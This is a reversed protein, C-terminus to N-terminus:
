AESRPRGLPLTQPSARMASPGQSWIDRGQQPYIDALPIIPAPCSGGMRKIRDIATLGNPGRPGCEGDPRETSRGCDDGHVTGCLDVPDELGDRDPLQEFILLQGPQYGDVSDRRNAVCGPLTEADASVGFCLASLSPGSDREVVDRLRHQEPRSSLSHVRCTKKTVGSDNSDSTESEEALRWNHYRCIGTEM